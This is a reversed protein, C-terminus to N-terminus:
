IKFDNILKVVQQTEKLTLVQSIPLSLVQRCVDECIPLKLDHLSRYVEQKHPPIPYHINTEVGYEKLYSQLRNREQCLIPYLHYVSPAGEITTYPLQILSNKIQNYEKAIEQRHANDKDLRQLKIRLVAAQLEDLRSNFGMFKHEYKQETGYNAIARVRCALMEDNTTVAGGDGLAGLNKGPYFSFGAADGLSGARQGTTSFAGHAQAADEVVILNHDKAIKCITEMCCVKGYLHVPMIARTRPTILPSLLQEDMLFDSSKIDCLIPTLGVSTIAEVSAIFTHASVIIEDGENWGRLQKYALLILRLADLGNGVGVCHRTGCFNAFENEFSLTENGRLYWGSQAVKVLANHIEPEFSQTIKQIDLFRITM